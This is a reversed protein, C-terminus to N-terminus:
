PQSICHKVLTEAITKYTSSDTPKEILKLAQKALYEKEKPDIHTSFIVVPIEKLQPDKKIVELTKKGDMKPMNIDMVILCPLDDTEKTKNLFDVAEEGDQVIELKVQSLATIAECLLLCDDKDDDVCLITKNTTTSIPPETM